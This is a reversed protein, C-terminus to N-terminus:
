GLGPIREGRLMAMLQEPTLRAAQEAGTLLQDSLDRKVRHLDSIHQEVTDDIIFRYVTVPREQGIRHARDSAQDEVAPNWWPDMHLVYDAATLNLGTGGARLSILFLDGEGAQFAAVRADRQKAPTSGDLYQYAIEAEDLWERLIALHRVFQSFVLARHRGERLTPVVEQFAVLKSGAPADPGGVLRPSCCAQRLRTLKELIQMANPEDVRALEDLAQRRLAEYFAVEDPTREVHITIEQKPPLEELVASKTRRLVFPLVLQRLQAAVERDGSEVPGAYRKRFSDERGLLGPNLFAFQAWLEGLHNEIPTGTLTVRYPARLARAAQHRQTQPNKIAQAEDLVIAGWERSALLRSESQLLGYSCVLVDGAGVRAVHAGRDGAGFREVSLSPAFRWAQELWGGCVSTPAVVLTPGAPRQALLWALVQITKGLGMDDALCAGAGLASMRMLWRFGERQYPRLEAQLTTPVEAVRFSTLADRLDEFARNTRKKDAQELLPELTPAALRPVRSGGKSREGVRRLGDLRRKLQATLAVFEGSDLQVFRGPGSHLRELLEQLDLVLAEDVELTGKVRFWDGTGSISVGFGGRRPSRVALTEGEPWEVVLDDHEPLEVLLELADETKPLPYRHGDPESRQLAVLREPLARARRLEDKPDREARRPGAPTQALLSAAGTGPELAPGDSGLPRVVVRAVIGDGLPSLQLVLRSDAPVTEAPSAEAGDHVEFTGSFRDLLRGIRDAAALPIRLPKTLREALQRQAKDFAIVEYRSPSIEHVMVTREMPPRVSLELDGHGSPELVLRPSRGIVEVPSSGDYSFVAPHGVLARWTRDHDWEHEVEPYGRWTRYTHQRLAKTIRRDQDTMGKVSGPDSLLRTLAVKRGVSWGKRTWKQERPELHVADLGSWLRWAVRATPGASAVPRSAKTALTELSALRREWAPTAERHGVLAPGFDHERRRETAAEIEVALWHWGVERARDTSEATRAPTPQDSWAALLACLLATLPHRAEDPPAVSAGRIMDGIQQLVDYPSPTGFRRQGIGMMGDLITGVQKLRSAKGSLLYALPLLIGDPSPLVVDRTRRRQDAVCAAYIKVAGEVDGRALAFWGHLLTPGPIAELHAGAHDLEGALLAERACVLRLQPIDPHKARCREAIDRIDEGTADIFRRMSLDDLVRAALRGPLSRLLGVDLPDAVLPDLALRGSRGLMLENEAREFAQEDGRYLATRLERLLVANRRGVRRPLAEAIQSSVAEFRGEVRMRRLLPEAVEAPVFPEGQVKAVVGKRTLARITRDVRGVDAPASDDDSLALALDALRAPGHVMALHELVWLQEPRSSPSPTPCGRPM